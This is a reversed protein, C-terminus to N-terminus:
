VRQGVEEPKKTEYKRLQQVLAIGGFSVGLLFIASMGVINLVAAVIIAYTAGDKMGLGLLGYATETVGLNGPTLVITRSADFVLNFISLRAISLKRGLEAFCLWNQLTGILFNVIGFGFMIVCVRINRVCILLTQLISNAQKAWNGMKSIRDNWLVSAYTIIVTCAVMLTFILALWVFM